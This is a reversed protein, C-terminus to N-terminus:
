TNLIAFDRGLFHFHAEEVALHQIKVRSKWKKPLSKGDEVSLVKPASGTLFFCGTYVLVFLPFWFSNWLFCRHQKHLIQCWIHYFHCFTFTFLKVKCGFLQRHTKICICTTPSKKCNEPVPGSGPVPLRGQLRGVVAKQRELYQKTTESM